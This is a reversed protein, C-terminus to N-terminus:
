WLITEMIFDTLVIAIIIHWTNQIYIKQVSM